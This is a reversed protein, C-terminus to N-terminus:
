KEHFSFKWAGSCIGPCCHLGGRKATPTGKVVLEHDKGEHELKYLTTVVPNWLMKKELPLRDMVGFILSTLAKYDINGNPPKGALLGVFIIIQCSPM